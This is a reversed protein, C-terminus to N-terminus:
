RCLAVARERTGAARPLLLSKGAERGVVVGGGWRWRGWRGVEGGGCWAWTRGEWGTAHSPRLLRQPQLITRETEPHGLTTGLITDGTATSDGTSVEGTLTITMSSVKTHYAIHIAHDAIIVGWGIVRDRRDHCCCRVALLLPPLLSPGYHYTGAPFHPDPWTASWRCSRRNAVLITSRTESQTSGPVGRYRFIM